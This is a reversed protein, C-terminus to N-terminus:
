NVIVKFMVRKVVDVYIVYQYMLISEMFDYLLMKFEWEFQCKVIIMDFICKDSDDYGFGYFEMGIVDVIVVVFCLNGSVKCYVDIMFEVFEWVIVENNFNGVNFIQGNVRFLNEIMRIVVEIVDKIYIFIRQLQGGEVLKLLEGKM